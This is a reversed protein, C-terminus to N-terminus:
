DMINKALEITIQTEQLLSPRRETDRIRIRGRHTAQDRRPNSRSQLKVLAGALIKLAEEREIIREAPIEKFSNKRQAGGCHPKFREVFDKSRDRVVLFLNVLEGDIDNYVEVPSPPKNFLLNAAGGFVEVYIHHRPVLPLLAKLLNYKGGIYPFFCLRAM